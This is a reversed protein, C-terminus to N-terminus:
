IFSFHILVAFLLVVVCGKQGVCTPYFLFLTFM